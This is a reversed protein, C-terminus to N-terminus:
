VNAVNRIKGFAAGAGRTGASSVSGALSTISSLSGNVFYYSIIPTSILLVFTVTNFVPHHIMYSETPSLSAQIDLISNSAAYIVAMIINWSKIYFIFKAYTFLPQIESSIFMFALTAPFFSYLILLFFGQVYPYAFLFATFSLRSLFDSIFSGLWAAVNALTNMIFSYIKSTTGGILGKEPERVTLDYSNGKTLKENVLSWVLFENGKLEYEGPANRNFTKRSVIEDFKSKAEFENLYKVLDNYLSTWQDTKSGYQGVVEPHGPWLFKLNSADITGNEEMKNL